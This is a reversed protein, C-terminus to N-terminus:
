ERYSLRAMIFGGIVILPMMALCVLTMRWSFVAALSVGILISLLIEFIISYYETTLGSLKVVDEHVIEQNRDPDDENFSQLPKDIM